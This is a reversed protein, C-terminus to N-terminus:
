RASNAEPDTMYSRYIHTRLADSVPPPPRFSQNLPFPSESSLWNRPAPDRYKLG